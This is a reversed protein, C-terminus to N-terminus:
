RYVDRRHDVDVVLVLFKGNNIEALIRYDGVRYRWMGALEGTLGKGTARPDSAGAVRTRLYAVIRRQVPKDLKGFAKDAEATFEVRWPTGSKSKM